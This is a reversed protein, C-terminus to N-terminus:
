GGLGAVGGAGGGLGVKAVWRRECVGGRAGEAGGSGTEEGDNWGRNTGNAETSLSTVTCPWSIANEVLCM